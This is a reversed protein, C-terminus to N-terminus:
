LDGAQTEVIERLRRRAAAVRSKVTGLPLSLEDAIQSSSLGRYYTLVLVERFHDPLKELGRRVRHCDLETGPDLHEESVPERQLEQQLVRRRDVRRIRDIGRCRLKVLLWARVSGRSPEYSSATQWVEVFVDHVLDEAESPSHLLRMALAFLMGSYRDYLLAVAHNNGEAAARILEADSVIPSSLPTRFENQTVTRIPKADLLPAADVDLCGTVSERCIEERMRRAIGTIALFTHFV